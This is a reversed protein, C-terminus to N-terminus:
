LEDPAPRLTHFDSDEVGLVDLGDCQHFSLIHFVEVIRHRCYDVALRVIRQPEDTADFPKLEHDEPLVVPLERFIRRRRPLIM